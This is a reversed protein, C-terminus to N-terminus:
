PNSAVKAGEKKDIWGGGLDRYLDVLNTLGGIM